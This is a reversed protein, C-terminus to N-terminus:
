LQWCNLFGSKRNPPRSLIFIRDEETSLEPIRGENIQKANTIIRSQAALRFVETLRVVPVAGSNIIDTLVQGPGVSPLLDVDGVILLAISDTLARLLSRMLLVDVM